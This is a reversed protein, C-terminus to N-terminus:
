LSLPDPHLGGTGDGFHDIQVGAKDMITLLLNCMPTNAPYSQHFGSRIRGGLKGALLTPLDFHRHLNGDGMGGGYLMLSHDLLSGDGDPTAAMKELFYAFLSTSAHRDQGEQRDPGSRQSSAFGCHHQDPVGIFAFTRSSLERAMIMSFVRTTDTRFALLQLDFMLKAYADFTDPVETPRAVLEVESAPQTERSKSRPKWRACRTWTNM